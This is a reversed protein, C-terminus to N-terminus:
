AMTFIWPLVFDVAFDQRFDKRSHIWRAGIQRTRWIKGVLREFKSIETICPCKRQEHWFAMQPAGTFIEALREIGVAHRFEDAFHAPMTAGGQRRQLFVNRGFMEMEVMNVQQIRLHRVMGGAWPVNAAQAAAVLDHRQLVIFVEGIRWLVERIKDQCALDMLGFCKLVDNFVVTESLVTAADEPPVDHVAPRLEGIRDNIVIEFPFEREVIQRTRLLREGDDARIDDPVGAIDHGDVIGRRGHFARKFDFVGFCAVDDQLARDIHRRTRLSLKPAEAVDAGVVGQPEDCPCRLIAAAGIM